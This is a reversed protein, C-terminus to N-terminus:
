QIYLQKKDKVTHKTLDTVTYKTAYIATCCTIINVDYHKHATGCTVPPVPHPPMAACWAVIHM